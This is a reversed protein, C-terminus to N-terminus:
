MRVRGNESRNPKYRNLDTKKGNSGPHSNRYGSNMTIGKTDLLTLQNCLVVGGITPKTM